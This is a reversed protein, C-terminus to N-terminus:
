KLKKTFFNILNRLILFLSCHSRKILKFTILKALKSICSITTITAKRHTHHGFHLGEVLLLGSTATTTPRCTWPPLEPSMRPSIYHLLQWLNSCWLMVSESVNVKTNYIKGKWPLSLRWAYTNQNGRNFISLNIHM